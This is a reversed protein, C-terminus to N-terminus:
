RGSEARRKIGDLWERRLLGSGPVILRWYIAAGRTSESHVIMRTETTITTWGGGADEATFDFAMKVAGQERYDVFEQANHVVAGRGLRTNAAGFVVLEHESSETLYGSAAFVDLVRKDPAFYGTAHFPARLVAGRIKMLTNLSSLDSWTAERAAQLVQEPRARTGVSHKESFQYEPMIDDLRSQHQAARIVPTPWLLAAIALVVGGAFILAGTSRKRVGLFRSPIALNVLGALALVFGSYTLISLPQFSAWYNFLLLAAVTMAALATWSLIKINM